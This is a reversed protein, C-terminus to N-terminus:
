SNITYQAGGVAEGGVLVNPGSCLMGYLQSVTVTRDRQHAVLSRGGCHRKGCWAPSEATALMPCLLARERGVTGGTTQRPQLATSPSRDQRSVRITGADHGGAPTVPLQVVCCFRLRGAAPTTMQRPHRSRLHLLMWVRSGVM